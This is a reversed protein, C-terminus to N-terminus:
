HQNKNVHPSYIPVQENQRELALCICLVDFSSAADDFNMNQTEEWLSPIIHIYIYIYIYMYTNLFVHMCVYMCAEFNM